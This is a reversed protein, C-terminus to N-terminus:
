ACDHMRLLLIYVKTCGNILKQLRVLFLYTITWEERSLSTTARWYRIPNLCVSCVSLKVYGAFIRSENTDKCPQSEFVLAYISAPFVLPTALPCFISESM